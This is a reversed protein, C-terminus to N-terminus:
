FEALEEFVPQVQISVSQGLVRAWKQLTDFKPCLVGREYKSLTSKDIESMAALLDLSVGKDKRVEQLKLCLDKIEEM